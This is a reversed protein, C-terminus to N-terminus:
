NQAETKVQNLFCHKHYVEDFLKIAETNNEVIKGCVECRGITDLIQSM